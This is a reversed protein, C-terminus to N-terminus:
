GKGPKRVKEWWVDAIKRVLPAAPGHLLKWMIKRQAIMATQLNPGFLSQVASGKSSLWWYRPSWVVDELGALVKFAELAGTSAATWVMPCVQALPAQNEVHSTLHEVTWQGAMVYFFAAFRFPLRGFVETLQAYDLGEPLGFLREVPPSSPGIMSVMAWLGSPVVMLAPKQVEQALRFSLLSYAFDDAAPFVLDADQCLRGVEELNLVRDLVATEAEPNVDAICQATVTAKNLGLTHQTCCMQRNMNTPEFLEPDVLTFRGVGARALSMAVTGGVGGCGIIFVHARRLRDQQATTLVGLNRRVRHLYDSM